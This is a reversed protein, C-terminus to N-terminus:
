QIIEIFALGFMATLIMFPISLVFLVIGTISRCRTKVFWVLAAVGVFSILLCVCAFMPVFGMLGFGNWADALFLWRTAILSM